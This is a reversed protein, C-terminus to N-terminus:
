RKKGSDNKPSPSKSHRYLWSRSTSVIDSPLVEEPMTSTVAEDPPPSNKDGTSESDSSADSGSLLLCHLNFALATELTHGM